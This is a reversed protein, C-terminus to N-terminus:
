KVAKRTKTKKATKEKAQDFAVRFKSVNRAPNAVLDLSALEDWTTAMRDVMKKASAYCTTCLGRVASLGDCDPTLCKVEKARAIM